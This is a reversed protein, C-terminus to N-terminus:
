IWEAKLIKQLSNNCDTEWWQGLNVASSSVLIIKIIFHLFVTM